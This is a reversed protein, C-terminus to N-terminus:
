WSGHSFGLWKRNRTASPISLLPSVQWGLTHNFPILNMKFGSGFYFTRSFAPPASNYSRFDLMELATYRSVEELTHHMSYTISKEIWSSLFFVCGSTEVAKIVLPRENWAAFKMVSVLASSAHRRRWYYFLRLNPYTICEHPNTFPRVYVLKKKRLQSLRRFLALVTLLRRLIEGSRRPYLLSNFARAANM